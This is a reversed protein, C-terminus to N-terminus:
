WWGEGRWFAGRVMKVMRVMVRRVRKGVRVVLVVSGMGMGM